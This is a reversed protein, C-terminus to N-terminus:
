ISVQHRYSRIGQVGCIYNESSVYTTQEFFHTCFFVFIMLAEFVDILKSM